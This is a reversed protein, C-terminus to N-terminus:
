HKTLEKPWSAPAKFDISRGDRNPGRWQPWDRASVSTAALALTCCTILGSTRKATFM